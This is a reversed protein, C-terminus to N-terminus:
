GLTRQLTTVGIYLALAFLGFLVAAVATGALLEVIVASSTLPASSQYSRFMNLVYIYAAVALPPIPLLFRMYRAASERLVYMLTGMGFMLLGTVMIAMFTTKVTERDM